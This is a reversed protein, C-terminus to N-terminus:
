ADDAGVPAAQRAHRSLQHGACGHNPWGAPGHGAASFLGQSRNHLPLHQTCLNRHARLADDDSPAVGLAARRQIRLSAASLRRRQIPLHSRPPKRRAAESVARVAHAHMHAIGAALRCHGRQPHRRVRPLAQGRHRGDASDSYFRRDIVHENLARYLRDRTLGEDGRRLTDHGDELYRTINEIVVIADDVVFGTAITLAMLSLNDITYGLLYMVGFTGVLSLPVAISPIITAWVERLFLFVVLVVLVVSILLSIEVDHVSARITTTRDVAVNIKITPPIAAQLRPMEAM